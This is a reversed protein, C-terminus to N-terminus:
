KSIIQMSIKPWPSFYFLGTILYTVFHYKHWKFFIISQPLIIDLKSSAILLNQYLIVLEPTLNTKEQIDLEELHSTLKKM